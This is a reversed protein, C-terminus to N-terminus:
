RQRLLARAPAGDGGPIRLPLCVLDYRGPPAAGLELGEIIWVGAALLVRHVEAGAPGDAGISLADIGVARVPLAALLEAAALTLTGPGRGRGRTRLLLRERSRVAHRRLAAPTVAGTVAIVRARGMMAEPPMEDIAAGAAFYHRPADVHTGVHAPLALSSVTAEDGAALDLVREIRVPPDGPWVPMGARIPASVDIWRSRGPSAAHSM